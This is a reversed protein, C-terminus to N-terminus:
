AAGPGAASAAAATCSRVFDHVQARGDGERWAVALHAPALGRVPRVVFEPRRYIEANGGSILAVGLGRGLAEVVEEPGHVVAAVRAPRGGRADEGLWFSRLPGASEPIALFPEDLLDEVTVETRTTLRHGVPLAVLRPETFLVRHRVGADGPLPLWCFAVDADGDALGVTADGFGVQRLEVRVAPHREQFARTAVPLLGRGVSITLGAVLVTSRAAVAEAVAAQAEDWAAVVRLAHDQLLRGAATLAVGGPGRVFLPTRLSQELARIQRSLAPQSVFLRQAARTFHLEDAVALFYRLDRVHVDM